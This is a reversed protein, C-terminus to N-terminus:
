LHVFHMMRGTLVLVIMWLALAAAAIQLPRRRARSVEDRAAGVLVACRVFFALPLSTWTLMLLNAATDAGTATANDMGGYMFFLIVWLLLAGGGIVGLLLADAGRRRYFGVGALVVGSYLLWRLARLVADATLPDLGAQLWWSLGILAATCVLYVVAKAYRSVGQGCPAM